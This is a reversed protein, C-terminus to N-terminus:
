GLSRAYTVHIALVVGLGEIFATSTTITRAANLAAVTTPCLGACADLFIDVDVGHPDLDDRAVLALIKQQDADTLATWEAANGAFADKVQKGTMAPLNYSKDEAMLEAAAATDDLGGYLPVDSDLVAKIAAYNSM